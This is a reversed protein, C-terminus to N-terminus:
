LSCRDDLLDSSLLASPVPCFARNIIEGKDVFDCCFDSEWINIYKEPGIVPRHSHVSQVHSYLYDFYTVIIPRLCWVSPWFHSNYTSDHLRQYPRSIRCLDLGKKPAETSSVEEEVLTAALLEVDRVEGGGEM